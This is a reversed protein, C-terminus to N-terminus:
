RILTIFDNTLNLYLLCIMQKENLSHFIPLQNSM